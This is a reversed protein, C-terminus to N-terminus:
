KKAAGSDHSYQTVLRPVQQTSKSSSSCDDSFSTSKELDIARVSKFSPNRERMLNTTSPQKKLTKRGSEADPAEVKLEKASHGNLDKDNHDYTSDIKNKLASQPPNMTTTDSLPPPPPSLKNFFLPTNNNPSKSTPSISDDNNKDKSNSSHLSSM